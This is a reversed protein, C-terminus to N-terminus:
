TKTNSDITVYLDNQYSLKNQIQSFNFLNKFRFKSVFDMISINQFNRDVFSILQDSM